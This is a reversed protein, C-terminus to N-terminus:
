EVINKSLIINKSIESLTTERIKVDEIKNAISNALLLNNSEAFKAHFKVAAEINKTYMKIFVAGIFDVVIGSLSGVVLLVKDTEISMYLTIGVIVIGFIIMMIGLGSLFKTQALNMDYYRMLQKQNMRFMKEARLVRKEPDIQSFEKEERRAEEELKELKKSEKM